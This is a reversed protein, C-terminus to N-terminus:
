KKLWYLCLFKERCRKKVPEDSRGRMRGVRPPLSFVFCEDTKKDARREVAAIQENDLGLLRYLEKM